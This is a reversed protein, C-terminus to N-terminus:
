LILNQKNKYEEIAINILDNILENQSKKKPLWLYLSLSGPMTNIESVYIKKTKDDILFDIRAVGRANIAKFTNIAYEKLDEVMEKSLLPNVKKGKKVVKSYNEVYKEKFTFFEDNVNIEELESTELNDYKINVTYINNFKAKRKINEITRSSADSSFIVLKAIKKEIKELVSDNGLSLKNAKRALGLVSKLKSNM